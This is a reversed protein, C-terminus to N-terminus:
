AEDEEYAIKNVANLFAMISSGVIDTSLGRGSFVNGAHRLRVVTEGMAERGETVSRVQFDDLEFHRGIVKEVAVFSADVPGDGVCVSELVSDGKRLKLHCTATIVNGTNIVYSELHYTAPVQFAVSAVIADLEKAEVSGNKSALNVVADFVKSGDDESLDYGLRGVAALVASQSDTAVLKIDAQDDRSGNVATPAQNLCDDCLRVIQDVLRTLEVLHVDTRVQLLEPRAGLISVFHELSVSNRGYASTKVEDAGARVAAVGCADALALKNSFYVGMRIDDPLAARFKRVLEQFEDPLIDGASDGITVISAGAAIAANAAELAFDNDSRGFDEAVFEVEPCVAVCASVYDTILQLIGAPKKHCGYEMQVTSVPVVVQLRPNVADKLASWTRAVSEPNFIDVPVALTSTTITSALSKVLLSDSKSDGLPTAEIVSVGLRDLLKALEIKVRFPLQNGTTSAFRKLTIDSVSITRIM